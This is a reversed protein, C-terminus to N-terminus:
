NLANELFYLDLYLKHEFSLHRGIERFAQIVVGLLWVTNVTKGCLIQTINGLDDYRSDAQQHWIIM